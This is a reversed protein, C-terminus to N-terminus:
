GERPESQGSQVLFQEGSCSDPLHEVPGSTMGGGLHVQEGVTLTLGFAELTRARSDWAFDSPFVPVITTGDSEVVLCGDVLQLLGDLAAADGENWPGSRVYSAAPSTPDVPPPDDTCATALVLVVAAVVGARGANKM